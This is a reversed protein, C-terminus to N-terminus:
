KNEFIEKTVSKLAKAGELDIKAAQEWSVNVGATKADIMANVTKGVNGNSLYHAELNELPIDLGAKVANIHNSVIIVASVKRFWMRLLSSFSVPAGAIFAQFWLFGFRFLIIALIFFAIVAGIILTVKLDEM